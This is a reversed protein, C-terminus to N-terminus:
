RNFYPHPLFKSGNGAVRSFTFYVNFKQHILLETKQVLFGSSYIESLNKARISHLIEAKTKKHIM